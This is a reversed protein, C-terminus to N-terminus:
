VGTPLEEDTHWVEGRLRPQPTADPARQTLARGCYPCYAFGNDLPSGEDFMFTNHCTTMWANFDDNEEISWECNEM